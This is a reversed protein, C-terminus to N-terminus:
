AWKKPDKFLGILYCTGISVYYSDRLWNWDYFTSSEFFIFYKKGLFPCPAQRNEVNQWKNKRKSILVAVSRSEKLLCLFVKWDWNQHFNGFNRCILTRSIESNLCTTLVNTIRFRRSGKRSRPFLRERSENVPVIWRISPAVQCRALILLLLAWGIIRCISRRFGVNRFKCFRISSKEDLPNLDIM